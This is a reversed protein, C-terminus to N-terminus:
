RRRLAKPSSSKVNCPPLVCIRLSRHRWLAMSTHIIALEQLLYSPVRFSCTNISGMLGAELVPFTSGRQRFGVMAKFAQQLGLWSSEGKIQDPVLLLSLLSPIVVLQVESNSENEWIEDIVAPRPKKFDPSPLLNSPTAVLIRDMYIRSTRQAFQLAAETITLNVNDLVQGVHHNRWKAVSHWGTKASPHVLWNLSTSHAMLHLVTTSIFLNHQVTPRNRLPFLIPPSAWVFEKKFGAVDESGVVALSARCANPCLTYVCYDQM